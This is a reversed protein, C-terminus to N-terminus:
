ALCAAGAITDDFPPFENEPESSNATKYVSSIRLIQKLCIGRFAVLHFRSSVTM